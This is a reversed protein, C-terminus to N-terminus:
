RLTGAGGGPRSVSCETRDICDIHQASTSTAPIPRQAPCLARSAGSLRRRSRPFSLHQDFVVSVGSAQGLGVCSFVAGSPAPLRIDHREGGTSAPACWAPPPSILNRLLFPHAFSFSVQGWTDFTTARELIDRIGLIRNILAMDITGDSSLSTVGRASPRPPPMRGWSPFSPLFNKFYKKLCAVQVPPAPIPVRSYPRGPMRNSHHAWHM